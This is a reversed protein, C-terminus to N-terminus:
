TQYTELDTKSRNQVYPSLSQMSSMNEVPIFGGGRHFLFTVVLQPIIWSGIM